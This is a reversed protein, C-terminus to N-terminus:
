NLPFRQSAQPVPEFLFPFQEQLHHSEAQEAFNHMYQRETNVHHANVNIFQPHIDQFGRQSVGTVAQPPPPPPPPMVMQPLMEAIPVPASHSAESLFNMNQSYSGSNMDSYGFNAVDRVNHRSSHVLSDGASPHHAGHPNGASVNRDKCCHSYSVVPTNSNISQTLDSGKGSPSFSQQEQNVHGSLSHQMPNVGSMQHVVPKSSPKKKIPNNGKMVVVEVIDGKTVTKNGQGEKSSLSHREPGSRKGSPVAKKKKGPTEAKGGSGSGDKIQSGGTGTKASSHHKQQHEKLKDLRTSTYSCDPCSYGRESSHIREHRILHSKEVFAKGCTSCVHTRIGLHSRMHAKLQSRKPTSYLCSPFKCHFVEGSLFSLEICIVHSFLVFFIM